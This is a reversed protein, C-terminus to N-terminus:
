VTNSKLAALLTEVETCLADLRSIAQLRAGSFDDSLPNAALAELEAALAVAPKAGFMGLSGKLAHATHRLPVPDNQQLAHRMKQVDVPWQEVFVESIIDVVEQDSSRLAAAYDFASSRSAMASEAGITEIQSSSRDARNRATECGYLELMRQLEVVEIPKSLYDDMGAQLCRERDGQMANATMAVIPTRPGQEGRRFRRTAELGDMFPMMMDMFILDYRHQMLKDLAVQGDGAVTVHHGWREMLAVALKQNVYNDEVLLVDLGPQHDRSVPTPAAVAIRTGHLVRHITQVLEAATFPKSLYANPNIGEARQVDNKQGAMSMMVLRLEAGGALSRLQRALTLGDMGPMHVDLLLLDFGHEGSGAGHFLALVAECSDTQTVLVGVHELARATVSRALEHDDVLLVRLGL